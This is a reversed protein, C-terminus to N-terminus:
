AQPHSLFPEDANSERKPNFLQKECQFSLGGQSTTDCNTALCKIM